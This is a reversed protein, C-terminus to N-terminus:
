PVFSRTSRRPPPLPDCSDLWWSVLSAFTSVIFHVLLDGPIEVGDKRAKGSQPRRRDRVLNAIMVPIYETVIAKARSNRLAKYIRRNAFLHEFAPLGFAVLHEYADGPSDPPTLRAELVEQMRRVARVLLDDKDTFHTYFTTKGVNARDIIEQVTLSGYDKEVVLSGLADLLLDETKRSRRDAPKM